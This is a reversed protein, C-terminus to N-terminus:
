RRSGPEFSKQRGQLTVLADDVSLAFTREERIVFGSATGRSPQVTIALTLLRSLEGLPLLVHGREQYATFSDSLVHGELQVELVLLNADASPQAVTVSAAAV